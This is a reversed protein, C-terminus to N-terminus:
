GHLRALKILYRLYTAKLFEKDTTIANVDITSCTRAVEGEAIDNVILDHVLLLIVKM